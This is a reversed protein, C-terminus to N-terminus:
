MTKGYQMIVMEMIETFDQSLLCREYAQWLKKGDANALEAYRGLNFALQGILVDKPRDSQTTNNLMQSFKVVQEICHKTQSNIMEQKTCQDSMKCMKSLRFEIKIM